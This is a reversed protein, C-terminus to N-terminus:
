KTDLGSARLWVDADHSGLAAARRYWLAALAPDPRLGVAGLKVLYAPDFTRALSLAAEAHGASAAYEYFKRAASIDKVQMMDAGHRYYAAALATDQVKAPGVVANPNAIAVATPGITGSPRIVTQDVTQGVSSAPQNAAAAIDINSSADDHPVPPVNAAADTTTTATAAV